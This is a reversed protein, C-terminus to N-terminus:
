ELRDAGRLVERLESALQEISQGHYPLRIGFKEEVKFLFQIIEPVDLQVQQLEKQKLFLDAPPGEMYKTGQDLIIVHDAYQLADDMSHTVLVTTLENKQHLQYFMNMMDKQGRPDLGATPEDLVLVEPNMALVGAIAVRRMQGGSLDFPSKELLSEPLQVASLSDLIRKNVEEQNVGFNKPGFGIDKEVTEEFLQHEPYQFVVGVRKRLDKINKIKKDSVLKYDGVTVEGETPKLLGNLHQIVTSKGSGTHGVIAVFSGSKIRFSLDHFAQHEFPTNPMYTFTVNEFSIDM